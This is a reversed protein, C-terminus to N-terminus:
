TGRVTKGETAPAPTAAAAVELADAGMLKDRGIVLLGLCTAAPADPRAEEAEADCARDAGDAGILSRPVEEKKTGPGM